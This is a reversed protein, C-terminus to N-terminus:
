LCRCMITNKLCNFNLLFLKVLNMENKKVLVANINAFLLSFYYINTGTELQM